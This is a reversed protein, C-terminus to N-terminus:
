VHIEEAKRRRLFEKIAQRIISSISREEERAIQRLEEHIKMPLRLSIILESHDKELSNELSEDVKLDPYKERIYRKISKRILTSVQPYECGCYEDEYYEKIAIKRLAEYIEPPLRVTVRKEMKSRKNGHVVKDAMKM